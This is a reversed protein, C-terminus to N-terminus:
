SPWWDFTMEPEAIFVNLTRSGSIVGRDRTDTSREWDPHFIIAIWLLWTNRKNLILDYLWKM